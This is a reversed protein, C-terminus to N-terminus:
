RQWQRGSLEGHSRVFGQGNHAKGVPPRNWRQDLFSAAFSVAQHNARGPPDRAGREGFIDRGNTPPRARGSNDAIAEFNSGRGSLLIGLNKMTDPSLM